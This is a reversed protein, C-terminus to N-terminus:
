RSVPSRFDGPDQELPNESFFRSRLIVVGTIQKGLFDALPELLVRSRSRSAHFVFLGNRNRVIIGAHVVDLGPKQSYVGLFDGTHLSDLRLKLEDTKLWCISRSEMPIGELWRETLSKRNLMKDTKHLCFARPFSIEPCDVITTFFHRRHAYAVKGNKYRFRKLAQLYSELDDAQVLAYCNDVLTVCDFSDVRAVLKEGGKNAPSLTGSAYPRGQFYAALFELRAKANRTALEALILEQEAFEKERNKPERGKNNAFATSILLLLLLASWFPPAHKGKIVPQMNGSTPELNGLGRM